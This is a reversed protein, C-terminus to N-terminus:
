KKPDQKQSELNKEALACNQFGLKLIARNLENPFELEAFDKPLETGDTEDGAPQETADPETAAHLDPNANSENEFIKKFFKM